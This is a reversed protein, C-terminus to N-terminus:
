QLCIYRCDTDYSVNQLRCVDAARKAVKLYEFTGFCLIIINRGVSSVQMRGLGMKM